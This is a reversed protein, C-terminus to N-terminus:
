HLSKGFYCFDNGFLHLRLRTQPGPYCFRTQSDAGEELMILNAADYYGAQIDHM